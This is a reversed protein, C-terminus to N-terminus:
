SSPELSTDSAAARPRFEILLTLIGLAAGLIFWGRGFGLSDGTAYWLMGAISGYFLTLRHHARTIWIPSADDITETLGIGPVKQALLKEVKRGHKVAAQLLRHYWMRDMVFCVLWCVLSAMLIVGTLSANGWGLVSVAAEDRLAYGAAALTAGLITVALSRVRLGMDNFHKQVDITVKWVELTPNEAM